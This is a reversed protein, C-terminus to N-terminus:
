LRKPKWEKIEVGVIMGLDEYMEAVDRMLTPLMALADKDMFRDHVPCGINKTLDPPPSLADLAVNHLTQAKEVIAKLIPDAVARQDRDLKIIKTM